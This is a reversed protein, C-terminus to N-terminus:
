GWFKLQIAKNSQEVVIDLAKGVCEVMKEKIQKSKADNYCAAAPHYTTICDYGKMSLVSGCVDAMRDNIGGGMATYATKGLLVVIKPKVMSLEYLLRDNCCNIEVSTPTRNRKGDTTTPRCCCSNLITFDLKSKSVENLVEELKRGAAGAFYEKYVTEYFGPAEGLLVIDCEVLNAPVFVNNKLPCIDCKAEKTKEM